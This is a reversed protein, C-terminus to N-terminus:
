EISIKYHKNASVGGSFLITVTHSKFQTETWQCEAMKNEGWTVSKGHVKYRQVKPQKYMKGLWETYSRRGSVLYSQATFTGM